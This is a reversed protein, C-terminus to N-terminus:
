TFPVAFYVNNNYTADDCWLYRVVGPGPAVGQFEQQHTGGPEGFGSRDCVLFTM